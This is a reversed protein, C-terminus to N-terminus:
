KKTLSIGEPYMEKFFDSFDMVKGYVKAKIGNPYMAAYESDTPTIVVNPDKYTYSFVINENINEGSFNGNLRLTGKTDSSFSLSVQVQQITTGWETGSLSSPNKDKKCSVVCLLLLVSACIKFIKM